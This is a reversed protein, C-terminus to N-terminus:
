RSSSVGDCFSGITAKVLIKLRDSSYAAHVKAEGREALASTRDPHQLADVCQEIWEAPSSAVSLHERDHLDDAFGAHAFASVLTPRGHALADIVKIQTGGGSIVPAIVLAAEDYTTPLDDVYGRFNVEPLLAVHEPEHRGVAHLEAHPVRARVAPWVNACFWALGDINPQHSFFGVMLLRGPIAAARPRDPDPLAIVNPLWSRRESPPLHEPTPNSYWVHLARRALRRAVLNRVGMKIRHALRVGSGAVASKVFDDADFILRDHASSPVLGAIGVYQAVILDYGGEQIASAVWGSVLRRQRLAEVSWGWHSILATRIGREDKEKGLAFDPGGHIVLTDVDAVDRLADYIYNARMAGGFSRDGIRALTMYLIKM